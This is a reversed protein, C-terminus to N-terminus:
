NRRHKTPVINYTVGNITFKNGVTLSNIYAQLITIASEKSIEHNQLAQIDVIASNIVDSIITSLIEKETANLEKHASKISIQLLEIADNLSISRQQQAEVVPTPKNENITTITALVAKETVSKDPTKQAPANKETASKNIANQSTADQESSGPAAKKALEVANSIAADIQQPTPEANKTANNPKVPCFMALSIALTLIRKNTKM